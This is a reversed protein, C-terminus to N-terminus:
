ARSSRRRTTTGPDRDAVCRSPFVPSFAGWVRASDIHRYGEKLATSTSALAQTSRFVQEDRRMLPGGGVVAQVLPREGFGLLPM